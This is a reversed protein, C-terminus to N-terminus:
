WLSWCNSWLVAGEVERSGWGDGDGDGDVVDMGKDGVAQVENCVVWGPTVSEEDDGVM